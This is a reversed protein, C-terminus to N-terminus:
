SKDQNVHCWWWRQGSHSFVRHGCHPLIDRLFQKFRDRCRGPPRTQKVTLPSSFSVRCFWSPLLSFLSSACSCTSLRGFHDIDHQRDPQQSIVSCVSFMGHPLYMSSGSSSSEMTSQTAGASSCCQGETAADEGAGLQSSCLQILATSNMAKGSIQMLPSTLVNKLNTESLSASQMSLHSALFISQM